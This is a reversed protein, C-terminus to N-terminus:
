AQLHDFEYKKLKKLYDNEPVIFGAGGQITEIIVAATKKTILSLNQINNFEIFKINPILPRYARKRDEYGMVSMAGQTNGHYGNKAAIMESRGTVRKALKM